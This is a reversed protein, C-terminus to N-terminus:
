QVQLTVTGSSTLQKTPTTSSSGGGGGGCGSISLTSLYLVFFVLLWLHKKRLRFIAAPILLLSAWIMASYTTPLTETFVTTIQYTGQSTTSTTAISLTDSTASYSCTAGTPLNLCNVSVDTAASPLTVAYNATAGPSVSATPSSFSPAATASGSDVEFQFTNSTGGSPAPNRVTIAMIGPSALASAPLQATLQTASTFHTALATTGLYATSNSVFKSGTLTLSLAAAGSRAYAPSLSSVAPTPNPPLISIIYTATSVPSQSYNPATADALITITGTIPFQLPGTYPIWQPISVAGSTQYYITAGPTTTTITISQAQAIPGPTPSFTPAPIQVQLPITTSKSSSYTNDGRYSALIQQPSSGTISIGSSAAASQTLATLYIHALSYYFDSAIIDTVGDNNFDALTTFNCCPLDATNAVPVLTFTGDDKGLYIAIDQTNTSGTVYLDPIGDGNFDGVKVANAWLITSIPSDSAPTFSGDGKGLYVALAGPDGYIPTALDLHGDDNFDAATLNVSSGGSQNSVAITSGETFTGDGNGLYLSITQNFTNDAVAIDQNGDNNFDGTVMGGFLDAQAISSGVPVQTFTGDGKGLLVVLYYGGAAAIDPIGDGNFDASVIPAAGYNSYVPGGPAESFTGDGNGLLVILTAGGLTNTLLIDPKGDGNFDAVLVPNGSATISNNTAAQFGGRGDGLFIEVTPTAYINGIAFDPNGDNNFDGSAISSPENVTPLDALDILYPGAASASLTATALTSNSTTTDIFSVPDTPASASKTKNFGYISATLTYNGPNGSPTIAATSQYNGTVTLASSTSASTAYPIVAGPTGAFEAKYSYIGPGPRLVLSAKGVSTLAATGLIHIDTCHAATANCFNVQGHKIPSNTATVTATLTIATGTNATSVPHDNALITLATTTATQGHSQACIVTILLLLIPKLIRRIPMRTNELPNKPATHM